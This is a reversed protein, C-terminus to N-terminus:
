GGSKLRWDRLLVAGVHGAVFTLVLMSGINHVASLLPAYAVDSGSQLVFRVQWWAWGLILGTVNTAVMALAALLGISYYLRARFPSIRNWHQWQYIAYVLTLAVGAIVHLTEGPTQGAALRAVFIVIGGVAELTLLVWLVLLLPSRLRASRLNPQAHM